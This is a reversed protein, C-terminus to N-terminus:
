LYGVHRDVLVIVVTDKLCEHGVVFVLVELAFKKVAIGRAM